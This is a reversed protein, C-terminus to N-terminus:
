KSADRGDRLHQLTFPYSISLQIPLLSGWNSTDYLEFTIRRGNVMREHTFYDVGLTPVYESQFVNDFHQTILCTKGVNVDGVIFVDIKQIESEM